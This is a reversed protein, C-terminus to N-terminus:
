MKDIERSGEVPLIIVCTIPFLDTLKLIFFGIFCASPVYIAPDNSQKKINCFHCKHRRGNSNKKHNNVNRLKLLVLHLLKFPVQHHQNKKKFHNLHKQNTKWTQKKMQVKKRQKKQKKRKRRRKRRRRKMKRM